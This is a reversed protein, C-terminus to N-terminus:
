SIEEPSTDVNNEAGNNLDGEGCEGGWKQWGKLTKSDASGPKWASGILESIGEAIQRCLIRLQQVPGRKKWEDGKSVGHSQVVFRISREINSLIIAMNGRSRM